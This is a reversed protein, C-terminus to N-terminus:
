EWRKKKVKYVIIGLDEFVSTLKYKKIYKEDIYGHTVVFDPKIYTDTIEYIATPDLSSDFIIPTSFTTIGTYAGFVYSYTSDLFLVRPNEIDSEVIDRLAVVWEPSTLIEKKLVEKSESYDSKKSYSVIYPLLEPKKELISPATFVQILVCIILVLVSINKMIEFKKDFLFIITSLFFVIFAWTEIHYRVDLYGVLFLMMTKLVFFLLTIIMVIFIKKNKSFFSLSINKFNLILNILFWGVFFVGGGYFFCYKFASFVNKIKFSFFVDFWLDPDTFLTQPIHGSSSYRQPIQPMVLTATGSNDSIWPKHFVILSFLIWPAAVVLLGGMFMLSNVIRKNKSFLFVIIFACGSLVLADFRIVIAAGAIMGVIFSDKKSLNPLALLKYFIILFCLIAAPIARAALIEDLYLPNCLLFFTTIAGVISTNLLKKSIKCLFFSAAVAVLLNVIVGSYIGLGTFFDVISILLPFLYPFSIGYDTFVVYQRYTSVKYFDRFITKSLEYYSYSDPSFVEKVMICYFILYFLSTLVVFLAVKGKVSMINKVFALYLLIFFVLFFVSYFDITRFSNNVFGFLLIVPSLLVLLKVEVLKEFFSPMNKKLVYLILIGVLIGFLASRIIRYQENFAQLAVLLIAPSIIIAISISNLNKKLSKM